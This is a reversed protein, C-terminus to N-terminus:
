MKQNHGYFIAQELVDGVKQAMNSLSQLIIYDEGYIHQAAKTVLATAVVSNILAM